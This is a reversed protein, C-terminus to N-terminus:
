ALGKKATSWYPLEGTFLFAIVPLGQDIAQQLQRENGADVTVQVGLSELRLLNTYPIGITTLGLLRNLHRQSHEIGLYSLAM